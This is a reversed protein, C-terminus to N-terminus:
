GKIKRLSQDFESNLGNCVDHFNKAFKEQDISPDMDLTDNMIRAARDAMERRGIRYGVYATLAGGFIMSAYMTLDKAHDKIFERVKKRKTKVENVM